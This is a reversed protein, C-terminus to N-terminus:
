RTLSRLFEKLKNMDRPDVDIMKVGCPHHGWLGGTESGVWVVEVLVEMTHLSESISAFFLRLKLHEGVEFKEPLYILLGGESINTARGPYATSSRVPDYEIPLEM